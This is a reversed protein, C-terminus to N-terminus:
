SPCHPCVFLVLPTGNHIGLDLGSETLNPRSMDAAERLEEDSAARCKIAIDVHEKNQRYDSVASKGLTM